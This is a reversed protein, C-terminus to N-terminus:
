LYGLFSFCGQFNQHTFWIAM